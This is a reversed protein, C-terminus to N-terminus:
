RVDYNNFRIYAWLFILATIAAMLIIYGYVARWRDAWAPVPEVYRPIEEVAVAKRSTSYDEDPNYWHPSDPDEADKAKFWTLFEKQFKDLERLNKRFREYGGDLWIENMRSFQSLPSIMLLRQTHEYQRYMDRFHATLYEQRMDSIRQHMAARLEHPPYFPNDDRSSWAASTAEERLRKENVVIEQKMQETTMTVPFLRSALFISSNPVIVMLFLWLSVCLLASGLTHDTLISALLGLAAFLSIFLMSFLLFGMIEIVFSGGASLAGLCFLLLLSALVGSLLMSGVSLVVSVYKSLLFTFRSVPYSLTFALMRSQKSGSVADYSLLLVIFSLFMSVVFAWNISSDREILPNTLNYRVEAEWIGFANYWVSSPLLDARCDDILMSFKPAMVYQQSTQAVSSLNGARQQLREETQLRFQAYEQQMDQWQGVFSVTGILFVLLVSGYSIRFRLSRYCQLLENFLVRRFLYIKEKM